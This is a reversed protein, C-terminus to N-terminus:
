CAWLINRKAELYVAPRTLFVPAYNNNATAALHHQATQLTLNRELRLKCFGEM